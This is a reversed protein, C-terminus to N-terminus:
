YCSLLPFSKLTKYNRNKISHTRSFIKYTVFFKKEKKEKKCNQIDLLPKLISRSAFFRLLTLIM